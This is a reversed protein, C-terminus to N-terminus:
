KDRNFLPPLASKCMKSYIEDDWMNIESLIFCSCMFFIAETLMVNVQSGYQIVNEGSWEIKWNRGRM